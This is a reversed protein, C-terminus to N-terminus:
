KFIDNEKKEQTLRGFRTQVGVDIAKFHRFKVEQEGIKMSCYLCVHKVRCIGGKLM